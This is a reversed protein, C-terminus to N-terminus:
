SVAALWDHVNIWLLLPWHKLWYFFGSHFTVAENMDCPAPELARESIRHAYWSTFTSYIVDFVAKSNILTLLKSFTNLM